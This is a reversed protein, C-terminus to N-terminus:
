GPAPTAPPREVPLLLDELFFASLEARGALGAKKYIGLAQQRVTRESTGRVQAVEKHSLGKIVLLAVEREAPTLSWREFQADIAAGLGLLLGQAEGRWHSAQARARDLDRELARAATRLRRLRIWLYAAGGGAVAMVLVETALHGATTGSGSDVVLDAAMLVAVVAFLVIPLILTRADDGDDSM